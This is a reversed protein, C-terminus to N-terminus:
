VAVGILRLIPQEDRPREFIVYGSDTMATAQFLASRVATLDDLAGAVDTVGIDGAISRLLARGAPSGLDTERRIDDGFRINVSRWASALEEAGSAAERMAKEFACDLVLGVFESRWLRPQSSIFDFFALQSGTMPVSSAVTTAMAAVIEAEEAIPGRAAIREVFDRATASVLARCGIAALFDWLWRVFSSTEDWIEDSRLMAMAIRRLREACEFGLQEAEALVAGLQSTTETQSNLTLPQFADRVLAPEDSEARTFGDRLWKLVERDSWSLLEAELASIDEIM